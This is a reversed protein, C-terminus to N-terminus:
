QGADDVQHVTRRVGKHLSGRKRQLEVPFRSLEAHYQVPGAQCDPRAQHDHQARVNHPKRQDAGAHTEREPHSRRDHPFRRRLHRRCLRASFTMRLGSELTARMARYTPSANFDINKECPPARKYQDRPLDPNLPKAQSCFWSRRDEWGEVGAGINWVYDTGQGRFDGFYRYFEGPDKAFYYGMDHVWGWRVPLDGRQDLRNLAKMIGLSDYHSGITTVGKQTLCELMETKLLDAIAETRGRLIVDYPVTYRARLGTVEHGLVQEMIEKARSNNVSGGTVTPVFVRAPNDPAMRDLVAPTLLQQSMISQSMAKAEDLNEERPGMGAEPADPYLTIWIWKGPGLEKARQQIAEQASHVVEASTKGRAYTIKLQPDLKAADGNELRHPVLWAHPHTHTDILGPLVRRGKVDLMQTDPGALFKIENNTGLALVRGERIAMAQVTSLDADMMAINGNFVILDPYAKLKKMVEALDQGQAPVLVLFCLVIVTLLYTKKM